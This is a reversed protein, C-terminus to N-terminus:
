VSKKLRELDRAVTAAVDANVLSPDKEYRALDGTLYAQVRSKMGLSAELALDNASKKPHDKGPKAGDGGGAAGGEDKKGLGIKALLPTIIPKGDKGKVLFGAAVGGGVLLLFLVFIKGGGGGKAPAAATLARSGVPKRATGPAPAGPRPRMSTGPRAPAAPPPAAPPSPKRIGTPRQGGPGKTEM